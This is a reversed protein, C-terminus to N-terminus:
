THGKPIPPEHDTQPADIPPGLPQSLNAPTSRYPTWVYPSIVTYTRHFPPMRVTFHCHVHPSIDAHTRHFIPTRVTCYPSLIQSASVDSTRNATESKPAVLRKSVRQRFPCPSDLRCRGDIDVVISGTGSVVTNPEFGPTVPGVSVTHQRYRTAVCTYRSVVNM